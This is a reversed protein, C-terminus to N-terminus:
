KEISRAKVTLAKLLSDIIRQYPEGTSTTDMDYWQRLMHWAVTKAMPEEEMQAPSMGTATQIYEEVALVMATIAADDESHDVRLCNRAAEISLVM